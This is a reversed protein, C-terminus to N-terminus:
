LEKNTYRCIIDIFHLMNFLCSGIFGSYYHLVNFLCNGIFSPCYHLVNFLCGGIFCSDYLSYLMRVIIFLLAHIATLLKFPLRRDYSGMWLFFAGTFMIYRAWLEWTYLFSWLVELRNCQCLQLHNKCPVGVLYLFSTIM